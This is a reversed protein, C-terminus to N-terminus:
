SIFDPPPQPNEPYIVIFFFQYYLALSRDYYGFHSKFFTSGKLKEHELEEEGQQPQNNTRNDPTEDSDPDHDMIETDISFIPM